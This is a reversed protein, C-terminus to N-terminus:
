WRKIKVEVENGWTRGILTWANGTSGGASPDSSRRTTGEWSGRAESPCRALSRAHVHGSSQPSSWARLLTCRTWLPRDRWCTGHEMQKRSCRLESSIVIIEPHTVSSRAFLTGHWRREPGRTHDPGCRTPLGGESFRWVRSPQLGEVWSVWRCLSLCPLYSLLCLNWSQIRALKDQWGGVSYHHYNEKCEM